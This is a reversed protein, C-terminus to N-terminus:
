QCLNYKLVNLSVTYPNIEKTYSNLRKLFTIRLYYVHLINERIKMPVKEKM